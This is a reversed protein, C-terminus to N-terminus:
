KVSNWKNEDLLLVLAVGRICHKEVKRLSIGHDVTNFGELYDVFIALPYKGIAVANYIYELLNAVAHENLVNYKQCSILFENSSAGRSFKALRLSYQYIDINKLHNNTM